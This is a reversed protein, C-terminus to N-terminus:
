ISINNEHLAKAIAIRAEKHPKVAKFIKPLLKEWSSQAMYSMRIESAKVAFGLCDLNQKLAQLAITNNKEERAELYIELTQTHLYTICEILDSIKPIEKNVDIQPSLAKLRIKTSEALEKTMHKDRHILVTQRGINFRKKLYVFSADGLIEREIIKRSESMCIKCRRQAM